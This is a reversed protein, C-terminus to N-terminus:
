RTVEADVRIVGQAVRLRFIHADPSTVEIDYHGTRWAWASSEAPDLTLTVAGDVVAANGITTSWEHLVVDTDVRSRIQSQVTWTDDIPTGNVTVGFGHAWTTGQEITLDRELAPM